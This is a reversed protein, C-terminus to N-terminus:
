PLRLAGIRTQIAAKTIPGAQGDTKLTEGARNQRRKYALTSKQFIRIAKRMREMRDGGGYVGTNFGMKYLDSM